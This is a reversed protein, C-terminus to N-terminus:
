GKCGAADSKEQARDILAPHYCMIRDREYKRGKEFFRECLARVQRNQGPSLNDIYTNARLWMKQFIDTM